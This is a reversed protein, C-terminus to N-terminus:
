LVRWAITVVKHLEVACCSCCRCCCYNEVLLLLARISMDEDDVELAFAFGAVGGLGM